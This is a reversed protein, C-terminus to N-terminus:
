PCSPTRSLTGRRVGYGGKVGLHQIRALRRSYLAPRKLVRDLAQPFFRLECVEPNVFRARKSVFGLMQILKGIDIPAAKAFNRPENIAGLRFRTSSSAHM